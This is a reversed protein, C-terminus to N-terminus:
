QEPGFDGSSGAFVWRHSGLLVSRANVLNSGDRARYGRVQVPDGVKLDGRKWGRNKLANPSGTQFVWAVAKGTQDTVDVHFYAHPNIWDVKTVVGQLTVPSNMDYEASFSHHALLPIGTMAAFVALKAATM